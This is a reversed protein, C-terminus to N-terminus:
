QRVKRPYAMRLFVGWPHARRAWDTDLAAFILVTVKAGEHFLGKVQSGDPLRLAVEVAGGDAGASVQGLLAEYRAQRALRLRQATEDRRQQSVARRLKLAALAREQFEEAPRCGRRLALRSPRTMKWTRPPSSIWRSSSTTNCTRTRAVLGLSQHDLPSSAYRAGHSSSPSRCPTSGPLGLQVTKNAGLPSGNVEIPVGTDQCAEGM